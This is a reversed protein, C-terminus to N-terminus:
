KEISKPYHMAYLTAVIGGFSHGLISWTPLNLDKRLEEVDNVIDMPSLSEDVELAESRLTGRQDVGILYFYKELREAQFYMFDYCSSGPGGHLYLLPPLTPNGRFEVYLKKGRISLLEMLVEM